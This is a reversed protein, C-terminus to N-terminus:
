VFAGDSTHKVRFHQYIALIASLAVRFPNEADNQFAQLFLAVTNFPTDDICCLITTDLATPSSENESKFIRSFLIFPQNFSEIEFDSKFQSTSFPNKALANGRSFSIASLVFDCVCIQIFEFICYFNGFTKLGGKIIATYHKITM